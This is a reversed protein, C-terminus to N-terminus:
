YGCAPNHAPRATLCMRGAPRPPSQASRRRLPYLRPRSLPFEPSLLFVSRNEPRRLPTGPRFSPLTRRAAPPSTWRHGPSAAPLSGCAAGPSHNDPPRHVSPSRACYTAPPTGPWSPGGTCRRRPPDPPPCGDAHAAPSRTNYLFASGRCGPFSQIRCSWVPSSAPLPQAPRLSLRAKEPERRRM